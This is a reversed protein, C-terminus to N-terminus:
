EVGAGCGCERYDLFVAVASGDALVSPLSLVGLSTGLGSGDTPMGTGAALIGGGHWYRDSLEM